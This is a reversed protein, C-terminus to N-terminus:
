DAAGRGALKPAEFHVEPQLLLWTSAVAINVLAIFGLGLMAFIGVGARAEFLSTLFVVVAALGLLGVALLSYLQWGRLVPGATLTWQTSEGATPPPVDLWKEIWTRASDSLCFGLFDGSIAYEVLAVAVFAFMGLAVVALAAGALAPWGRLRAAAQGLAAASATYHGFLCALIVEAFLLVIVAVLLVHAIWPGIPKPQRPLDTEPDVVLATGGHQVEKLEKVVQFDWGPYAAKIAPLDARKLDSESSKRDPVSVPVNVAFLYEEPHNGLTLRYIGSQDTDLWRFVSFDEGGKTKVKRPADEGPVMLTADLEGSGLFFEELPTGVLVAQERLRGAVAFRTLEHMM